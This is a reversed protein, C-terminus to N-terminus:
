LRAAAPLRRRRGCSRRHVPQCLGAVSLGAGRRAHQRHIVDLSLLDGTKGRQGAYVQVAFRKSIFEEAGVQFLYQYFPEEVSVRMRAIDKEGIISLNGQEIGQTQWVVFSHLM